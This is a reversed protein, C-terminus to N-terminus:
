ADGGGEILRLAPRTPPTTPLLQRELEGVAVALEANAAARLEVAKELNRTVANLQWAIQQLAVNPDAAM